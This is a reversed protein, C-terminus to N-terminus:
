IHQANPNINGTSARVMRQQQLLANAYSQKARDVQAQNPMNNAQNQPNVKNQMQLKKLERSKLADAAQDNGSKRLALIRQQTAKDLSQDLQDGAAAIAADANFNERILFDIFGEKIRNPFEYDKSKAVPPLSGMASDAIDDDVEPDWDDTSRVNVYKSLKSNDIQKVNSPSVDTDLELSDDQVSEDHDLYEHLMMFTQIPMLKVANRMSHIKESSELHEVIDDVLEADLGFLSTLTSKFLSDAGSNSREKRLPTNAFKINDTM